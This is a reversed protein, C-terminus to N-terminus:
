INVGDDDDAKTVSLIIQASDTLHSLSCLVLWRTQLMTEVM